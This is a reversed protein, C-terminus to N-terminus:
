RSHAIDYLIFCQKITTKMWSQLHTFTELHNKLVGFYESNLYM